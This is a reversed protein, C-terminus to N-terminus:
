LNILWNKSMVFEAYQCYCTFLASITDIKDIRKVELITFFFTLPKSLM